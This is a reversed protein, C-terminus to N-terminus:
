RSLTVTRWSNFPMGQVMGSVHMVVFMSSKSIIMLRWTFHMTVGDVIAKTKGILRPIDKVECGLSLALDDHSLIPSKMGDKKAEKTFAFASENAWTFVMPVQMEPHTAILRGGRRNIETSGNNNNTTVLRTNERKLVIYDKEPSAPYPMMMGGASVFGKHHNTMWKGYFLSEIASFSNPNGFHCISDNSATSKANVIQVSLIFFIGVIILMYKLLNKMLDGIAYRVRFFEIEILAHGFKLM